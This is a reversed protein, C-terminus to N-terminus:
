APADPAFAGQVKPDVSMMDRRAREGAKRAGLREFIALAAQLRDQAVAGMPDQHAHLLGSLHLLRAEGYPFPMARVLALGEEISREADDRRQGRMSVLAQVRLAESLTVNQGSARTREVALRATEEARTMDGRELYAWALIPLVGDVDHEQRDDRDLLPALREIAAESRGLAIDLEALTGHALRLAQLDNSREAVAACEGLLRTAEDWAGEALSLAGLQYLPYATGWAGGAQRAIAVAQEDDARARAWDGLFFSMLGRGGITVAILMPNGQREAVTCARETYPRAALFRGGLRYVVAVNYLAWCLVYLHEAREALPIADELSRLGEGIRGIKLLALGQGFLAEALVREDGIARAVEEARRDADLLEVYRGSAFYLHGLAVLLAALGPSPDAGSLDDALPRLVAVGQEPTGRDAHVQGLAATVRAVDGAEGAARYVETASELAAIAEDYRAWTSLTAALRERGRAGERVAGLGDAREIWQRYYDLAADHAARAAAGDGARELYLLAKHQAASRSYHYALREVRREATGEVLFPDGELAEAVRRHLAMRRAPGLDAEVVERIVDHAFWYGGPGSQEVLLRAQGAADLAASVEDEPYATTALLLPIQVARGIVAAVALVDRAAPELAIVRQRVSQALTWPITVEGSGTEAVLRLGQACSMVFFPVGAAREMMRGRLGPEIARADGLMGDFLAAADAAALPALAHRAVLGAHSLDALVLSLPHQPSLDTDRYAAVVRLPTAAASRALSALVDLADGDAWQLDDLLLLTGGPGAVNALFRAVADRILRREQAPPLSWSPLPEIPAAALEPLLRVLWACGRLDARLHAPTQRDIHGKLAGLLPAYPEHDGRRQCGGQLVALRAPAALGCAEDLLRSKGIGPEGAVLLLPPGDGALHRRLLAVEQGRGVLPPVDKLRASLGAASRSSRRAAMEFLARDPASLGLAAALLSVTDKRPWRNIGQELASVARVSVRAREALEEQTLGVDQRYRKLLAAFTAHMEAAM